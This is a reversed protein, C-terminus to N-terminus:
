AHYGSADFRLSGRWRGPQGCHDLPLMPTKKWTKSKIARSKLIVSAAGPADVEVVFDRDVETKAPYKGGDIQPYLNKIEVPNGQMSIKLICGLALGAIGLGAIMPQGPM